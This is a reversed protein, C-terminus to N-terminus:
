RSGLGKLAGIVELILTKKQVLECMEYSLTPRAGWKEKFRRIGSMDVAVILGDVDKFTSALVQPNTYEFTTYSLGYGFPFLVPSEKADYYRYGIFLGEGYRVAGAEGPWNLHSPIDALKLPFTEALKGAHKQM